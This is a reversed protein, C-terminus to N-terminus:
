ANDSARRPPEQPRTTNQQAPTAAGAWRYKRPGQPVRSDAIRPISTGRSMAPDPAHAKACLQRDGTLATFHRDEKTLRRSAAVSAPWRDRIPLGRTVARGRQRRTAQPHRRSDAKINCRDCAIPLHWKSTGWAHIM